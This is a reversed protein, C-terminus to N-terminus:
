VRNNFRPKGQDITRKTDVFFLPVAKLKGKGKESNLSVM